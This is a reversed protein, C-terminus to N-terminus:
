GNGDDATGTAPSSDTDTDGTPVTAPDIPIRPDLIVSEAAPETPVATGDLADTATPDPTVANTAPDAAADAPLTPPTAIEVPVGGEPTSPAEIEAPQEAMVLPGKNGCGALALPLSVMLAALLM